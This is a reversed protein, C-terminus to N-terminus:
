KYYQIACTRFIEKIKILSELENLQSGPGRTDM